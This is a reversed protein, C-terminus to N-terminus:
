HRADLRKIISDLKQDIDAYHAALAAQGDTLAVVTKGLWGAYALGAMVVVGMATKLLFWTLRNGNNNNNNVM